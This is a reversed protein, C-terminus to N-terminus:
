ANKDGDLLALIEYCASLNHYDVKAGGLSKQNSLKKNERNLVRYWAGYQHDVFHTWVYAWLNNYWDWYKKNSTRQALLAAAAISEAQVWFYKDSDCIGDEFDPAFGYYLGGHVNDWGRNIAQNFLHEATPLLWNTQISNKNQLRELTLLLKTWETQHGTQFGWPRYLNKPDNRNFDWDIQWNEDFHEWVLQNSLNAQRQCINSAILSARDLYHLENTAQFAAMLAECAHMNANQGRYNSFQWNEDAEDRYLGAADDWFYKELLIFTKRLWPKAQNFGAKIASAYALLVFALGYCYNTKDESLHNNLTWWYSGTQKNFHKERLYNLAHLARYRYKESLNEDLRVLAMAYNYVIRASSVLHRSAKNFVTGDDLFYHFFGGTQDLANPEYFRLTAEIHDILFHKDLFNNPLSIVRTASTNM